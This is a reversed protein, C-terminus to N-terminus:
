GIVRRASLAEVEATSYGAAVLVDMTHEGLMPPAAHAATRRGDLTFPLGVVRHTDGPAIALDQVIGVSEVQESALMQAVNNMVSCPAGVAQMRRAAEAAPLASTKEELLRHLEARNKVRAPNSSFRADAPLGEVGLAGCVQKFLRDNGAAVFVWGDAAAFLEYPATMAMASGMKKPLEGSARHSAVFVTMWGVGTELLSNGVFSGKGVREVERLAALIGMASWMGSGMDILSVSVRVPADGENGTVSMVGTFAQMLPDYGPLGRMPGTQGFASIACYVLRPNVERLQEFGLGRAEASGPKLSHVFVDAQGALRAVVAQGEPTDLDVCASKKNRNLALFTSSSDGWAPPRWARTDDGGGVREIKIVEAGMDGLIQTCYPGAVNQTLDIVRLGRLVQEMAVHKGEKQTPDPEM